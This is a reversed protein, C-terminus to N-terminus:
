DVLVFASRAPVDGRTEWRHNTGRQILVDGPKLTISSDDLDMSMEGSLYIVYDITDTRHAFQHTAGPLSEIICFRTGGPPPSTGLVWNGADENQMFDSPAQETAWLLTSRRVHEQERYNTAEGDLWVVAKGAENHGTVIRRISGFPVQKDTLTAGM